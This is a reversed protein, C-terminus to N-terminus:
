LKQLKSEGSETEINKQIFQENAGIQFIDLAQKSAKLTKVYSIELLGKNRGM